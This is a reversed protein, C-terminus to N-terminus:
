VTLYQQIGLHRVSIVASDTTGMCMICLMELQKTARGRDSELSRMRIACRVATALLVRLLKTRKGKGKYHPKESLLKELNSRLCKCSYNACELKEM